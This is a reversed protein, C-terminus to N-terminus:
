NANISNPVYDGNDFKVELLEVKHTICMADDLLPIALKIAHDHPQKPLSELVPLIHQIRHRNKEEHADLMKECKVSLKTTEDADGDHLPEVNKGSHSFNGKRLASPMETPATTMTM